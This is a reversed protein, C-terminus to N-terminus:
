LPSYAKKISDIKSFLQMILSDQRKLKKEQQITLQKILNPDALLEELEPTKHITLNINSLHFNKLKKRVTAEETETLLHGTVYVDVKPSDTKADINTKLVTVNRPTLNESIFLDVNDSLKKEQMLQWAFYTAPLFSLIVLFYILKTAIPKQPSPITKEYRMYRALLMVAFGIYVCNIVYFYSGGWLYDWHGNALGYGATSLPPMCATAVAVGALVKTGRLRTIGIFGALGGFFALLIDYITAKSFSTLAHTPATFPTITFYLASASLSIMFGIMWNWACHKVMPWNNTAIGFGLGIVPAMLPSMLMAGIVAYSSDMNLGICAIVMTFALLWLNAGKFSVESLIEQRTAEESEERNIRSVWGLYRKLVAAKTPM